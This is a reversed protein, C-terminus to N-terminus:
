SKREDKSEPTMLGLSMHRRSHYNYIAIADAAARRINAPEDLSAAVLGLSDPFREPVTAM